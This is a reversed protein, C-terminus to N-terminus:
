PQRQRHLGGAAKGFVQDCISDLLLSLDESAGASSPCPILTCPLFTNQAPFHSPDRQARRRTWSSPVGHLLQQETQGCVQARLFVACALFWKM